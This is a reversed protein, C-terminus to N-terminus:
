ESIKIQLEKSIVKFLEAGTKSRWYNDKLAFHHPGSIPSSLWIEKSALQKNIVFIGQNTDITLISDNLDIDILGETDHNEITEIIKYIIRDIGRAFDSNKM